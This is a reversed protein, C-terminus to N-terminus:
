AHNTCIPSSMTLGNTSFDFLDKYLYYQLSLYPSSTFCLANSSGCHRRLTSANSIPKLHIGNHWWIGQPSTGRGRKESISCLNESSFWAFNPAIFSLFSTRDKGGGEKPRKKGGRVPSFFEIIESIGFAQICYTTLWTRKEWGNSSYM